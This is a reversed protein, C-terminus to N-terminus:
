ACHGGGGQKNIVAARVFNTAWHPVAPAFIHTYSAFTQQCVLGDLGKGMGTGSELQLATPLPVDAAYAAHSYHFEHGRIVAGMPHFPNPQTVRAEVYGLGQPKSHFHAQVPFVDAMPYSLGDRVIAAALVMFGGCEAYIPMNTRSMIRLRALQPSLSLPGALEEPFGGGLYLGDLEPWPETNLLSVRVLEAGARELAELNERYYFWLAADHVYGIRIGAPAAQPISWFEGNSDLPPAATACEMVRAIDTHERVLTALADLLITTRSSVPPQAAAAFGSVIQPAPCDLMLGMHREPLPNHPLRPMAGLVPVSTYHEISRRIINEQRVTAVKNLVVGCIRVGDEFTNMGHIIAAATRTMKTCDLSLLVPARLSAALHATSCSGEVDRGDFLGRNGEILAFGATRARALLLARLREPSLFYPDLNTAAQGAALALWAADIYDPGKKYPAVQVGAQSFARALGLSLLTKGGGGHLASIIIRPIHM